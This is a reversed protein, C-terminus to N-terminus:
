AEFSTEWAKQVIELPSVGDAFRLTVGSPDDLEAGTRVRFAAAVNEAARALSEQLEPSADAL